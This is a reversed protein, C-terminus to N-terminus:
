HRARYLRRALSKVVDPTGDRSGDAVLIAEYNDTLGSMVQITDEVMAEINEAENYAPIAVTISTM